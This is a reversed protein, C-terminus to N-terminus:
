VLLESLLTHFSLLQFLQTIWKQLQKGNFLRESLTRGAKIAVPTLEKEGTVDGLAYIGEVVTNQYEDVQIFGRENLTM